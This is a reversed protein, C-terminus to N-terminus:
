GEGEGDRGQYGNREGRRMWGHGGKGEGEWMRGSRGGEGWVGDREDEGRWGVGDKGM